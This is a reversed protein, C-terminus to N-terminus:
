SPNWKDTLGDPEIKANEKSLKTEFMAKNPSM